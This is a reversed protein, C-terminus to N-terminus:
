YRRSELYCYPLAQPALLTSRLTVRPRRNTTNQISKPCLRPLCRRGHKGRHTRRASQGQGTGRQRSAVAVDIIRLNLQTQQQENRKPRSQDQANSRVGLSGRLIVIQAHNRHPAWCAPPQQPAKTERRKRCRCGNGLRPTTATGALAWM